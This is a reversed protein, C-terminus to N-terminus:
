SKFKCNDFHYRPMIRNGGVKGCHPCTVQVTTIKQKARAEKIKQIRATDDFTNAWRREAAERMKQKTEETNRFGTRSEARKRKTEDSQTKGTNSARIKEVVESPLKRGILTKVYEERILQFVRSNPHYRANLKDMQSLAWLARSMKRKDTGTTMKVLLRHCIFHERATLSVLNTPHDAGGLSKPIIHHKETYGNITRDQARAIILFYTKTYKNNIFNM